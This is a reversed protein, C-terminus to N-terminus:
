QAGARVARHCPIMIPFPNAALARGVARGGGASGIKVAIRGYTSVWGRPIAYEALLVKRQFVGCFELAVRRLDFVIEGGKLFRQMRDAIEAITSSSSPRVDPYAGRIVTEMPTRGKGLFVQRVRPGDTAKWWVIGMRGFDTAVPIYFYQSRM